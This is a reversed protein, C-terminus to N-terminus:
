LNIVFLREGPIGGSLLADTAAFPDSYKAASRDDM